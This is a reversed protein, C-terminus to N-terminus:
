NQMDQLVHSVIVAALVLPVPFIVNNVSQAMIDLRVIMAVEVM